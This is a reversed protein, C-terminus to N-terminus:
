SFDELVSFLQILLTAPYVAARRGRNSSSHRYGAPTLSAASILARAQRPTLHPALILAAESASWYEEASTDAAATATM